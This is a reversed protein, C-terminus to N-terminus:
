SKDDALPPNVQDATPAAAAEDAIRKNLATLDEEISQPDPAADKAAMHGM